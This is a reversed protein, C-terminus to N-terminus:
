FLVTTVMPKDYTNRSTTTIASVCLCHVWRAKTRVMRTYSRIAFTIEKKREREREKKRETQRDRERERRHM